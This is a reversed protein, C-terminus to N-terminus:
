QDDVQNEVLVRSKDYLPKDCEVIIRDDSSIAGSIATDSNDADDIFINVIVTYYESGLFGEKEKLLRVYGDRPSNGPLVATNPVIMPYNKTSKVINVDGKEGGSIRDDSISITVEKMIGKNQTSDKIEKVKGNIVDYGLSKIRVSAKDGISIFDASEADVDAKFEFGKGSDEITCLKITSNVWMGKSVAIDQVLGDCPAIIVNGNKAARSLNNVREEQMKLDYYLMELEVQEKRFAINYDEMCNRYAKEALVEEKQIFTLDEKSEAGSDYLRNAMDLKRKSESLVYEAADVARKCTLVGTGSELAKKAESYTLKLKDLLFNDQISQKEIDEKRFVFLTDGKRVSDGSKVKIDEIKLTLDGDYYIDEKGTAEVTGEGSVSKLLSGEKPQMVIVEPFTLNDITNSFFTLLIMLGFFILLVKAAVRKKLDDSHLMFFNM